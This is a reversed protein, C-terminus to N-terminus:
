IEITKPMKAIAARQAAALGAAVADAMQPLATEVSPRMFPRPDMDSTGFELYGAKELNSGIDVYPGIDDEGSEASISNRLQGTDVAPPEGPASAQHNGYVRGTGAQSLTLKIENVLVVGVTDLVERGAQGKASEAIVKSLAGTAAELAAPGSADFAM